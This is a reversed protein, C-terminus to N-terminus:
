SFNSYSTDLGGCLVSGGCGRGVARGARRRVRFLVPCGRDGGTLFSGILSTFNKCKPGKKTLIKCISGHPFCNCFHVWVVAGPCKADYTCSVAGLSTADDQAVDPGGHRPVFETLFLPALLCPTTNNKYPAM